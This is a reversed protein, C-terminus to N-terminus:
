WYSEIVERASNAETFGARLKLLSWRQVFLKSVKFM